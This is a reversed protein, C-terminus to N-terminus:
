DVPVEVAERVGSLLERQVGAPYPPPLRCPLHAAPASASATM